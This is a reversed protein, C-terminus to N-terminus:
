RSFLLSLLLQGSHVHLIVMINIFLVGNVLDCPVFHSAFLTYYLLLLIFHLSVPGMSYTKHM